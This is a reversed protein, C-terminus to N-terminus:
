QLYDMACAGQTPYGRDLWEDMGGILIRINDFGMDSLRQYVEKCSAIDDSAGYLVIIRARDWDDVYDAITGAEINISDKIRCDQFYSLPLINIVTVHFEPHDSSKTLETFLEDSNILQELESENFSM